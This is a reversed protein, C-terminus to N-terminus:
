SFEIGTPMVNFDLYIFEATRTPQIYIQGILQNRDIIDSTNNTDDMVVNYAFLGQRQQVSDLYPNVQSLFQNRTATTNQEFLLTEAVQSIFSKLEILLRRVNIRNLASDQSQLTKQGLIAIGRGPFTGIPNVKGEYLKDKQSQTLKREVQRVLNLGGRSLGAPAFWAESTNDSNAFVGPILTSPTVWLNQFNTPNNVNLWPGYVAVYSSDLGEALSIYLNIDAGYNALDMIFISDGRKETNEILLDLASKHTPNEYILGPVTITKYRYETKNGLLNIVGIYNSGVLGQSNSNDIENYLNINNYIIDGEAGGFVGSQLTPISATYEPKAVGANDLYDPTKINVSKVRIYRSKNPYNGLTSIYPETTNSDELVHKQDGIIRSIYNSSKPDLSLNTFSELVSKSKDTDDGRRINLSFTGKTPNSGVIEWRINDKTGNELEGKSGLSGSSNMIIGESLTELELINSLEQINAISLTLTLDTGGSETAGLSASPITIVENETYRLGSSTVSISDVTTDNTLVITFIAGDGSGNSTGTVGTITGPTSGSINFSNTTFSQTGLVLGDNGSVKSSTASSFSGSAVRTVLLTSGGNQFYNYASLSTLFVHEESSSLFTDGYHAVYESYSTILTPIVVQGRVTPGIIASGIEIPQSTVQSQDNERALVGPSILTEIM